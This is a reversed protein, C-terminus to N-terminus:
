NYGCTLFSTGSLSISNLFYFSTLKVASMKIIIDKALRQFTTHSIELMRGAERLSILNNEWLQYISDFNEPIDM